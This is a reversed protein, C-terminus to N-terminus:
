KKRAYTKETRQTTIKFNDNGTNYININLNHTIITNQIQEQPKM